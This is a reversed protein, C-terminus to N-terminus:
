DCVCKEYTCAMRRRHKSHCVGRRPLLDNERCLPDKLFVADVRCTVCCYFVLLGDPVCRVVVVESGNCANM